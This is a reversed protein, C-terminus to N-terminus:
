VCDLLMYILKLQKTEFYIVHEAIGIGRYECVSIHSGVSLLWVIFPPTYSRGYAYVCWFLTDWIVNAQECIDDHLLDLPCSIFTITFSCCSQLFIDLEFLADLLDLIMGHVVDRRLGIRYPRTSAILSSGVGSGGDARPYVLDHTYGFGLYTTYLFGPRELYALFFTCAFM